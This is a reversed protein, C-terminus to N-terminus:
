PQDALLWATALCLRAQTQVMALDVREPTDTPEHYGPFFQGFFRVFPVKARAFDRYDSGGQTGSTRDLHLSLGLGRAARRLIPDLQPAWSALGPEVLEAPKVGALFAEANGPAADQVLQRIEQESWAHGIMDLNLYAVTRELPWLPQRVYHGSGLKGEEEGTWFALVVTRRPRVLSAALAKAIELLAAVGSANDDAGPYIEDGLRGLHDLHAGIVVAEASLRPDSGAVVGVVNRGHAVRERATMRITAAVGPLRRPPGSAAQAGEPASGALLCEALAPSVPALLPEQDGAVPELPLFRRSEPKEESLVGAWDRGDLALVAVAGADRAAALKAEFRDEFGSADYRERLEPTQWEPGPPLGGQLLVISGAVDLGRYDDRAPAKERIGFGVFVVPATLSRTSELPLLCDVGTAFSRTALRPGDRREVEIGGGPETLERLAVGQFYGAVGDPRRPLAAVGAQKLGSAVYEAAVELSRDGLGRGELYPAALFGIHAGLPTPRISALADGLPGEFAEVPAASVFDDAAPTQAGAVGALVVGLAMMATSFRRGM